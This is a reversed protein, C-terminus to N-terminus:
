HDSNRAVCRLHITIGTLYSSFQYINRLLFYVAETTYHDSNRAVCRLYITNRTLYSNFKYINHLLFYVAKTTYHDSNRAVSGSTTRNGASGSKRRLLPDPVPNSKISFCVIFNFMNQYIPLLMWTYKIESCEPCSVTISAVTRHHCFNPFYQCHTFLCQVIPLPNNHRFDWIPEWDQFIQVSLHINTSSPFSNSPIDFNWGPDLNNYVSSAYDMSQCFISLIIPDFCDL